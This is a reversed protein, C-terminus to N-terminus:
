KGTKNAFAATIYTQTPCATFKITAGDAQKLLFFFFFLNFGMQCSIYPEARRGEEEGEGTIVNNVPISFLTPTLKRWEWVKCGLVLRQRKKDKLSWNNCTFDPVPATNSPTPFPSQPKVYSKSGLLICFDPHTMPLRISHFRPSLKFIACITAVPFCGSDPRLYPIEMRLWTEDIDHGMSTFKSPSHLTIDPHPASISEM